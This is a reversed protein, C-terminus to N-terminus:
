VDSTVSSTASVVPIFVSEVVFFLSFVLFSLALSLLSFSRIARPSGFWRVVCVEITPITIFSKKYYVVLILYQHHKRM